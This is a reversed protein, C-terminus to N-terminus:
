AMHHHLLYAVLLLYMYWYISMIALTFYMRQCGFDLGQGERPPATTSSVPYPTFILVRRRFCLALFLRSKANSPLQGFTLRFARIGFWCTRTNPCLTDLVLCRHMILSFTIFAFPTRSCWPYNVLIYVDECNLVSVEPFALM